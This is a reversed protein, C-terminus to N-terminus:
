CPLLIKWCAGVNMAFQWRGGFTSGGLAFGCVTRRDPQEMIIAFIVAFVCVNKRVLHSYSLTNDSDTALRALKQAFRKEVKKHSDNKLWVAIPFSYVMIHLESQPPFNHCDQDV